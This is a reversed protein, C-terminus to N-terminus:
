CTLLDDVQVINESKRRVSFPSIEKTVFEGFNLPYDIALRLM